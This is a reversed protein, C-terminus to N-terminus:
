FPQNPLSDLYRLLRGGHRYLKSGGRGGRRGRKWPRPTIRAMPTFESCENCASCAPWGGLLYHSGKTHGCACRLGVEAPFRQLIPREM